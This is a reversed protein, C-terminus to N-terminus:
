PASFGIGLAEATGYHRQSSGGGETALAALSQWAFLLFPFADASTSLLPSAGTVAAKMGSKNEPHDSWQLGAKEIRTRNSTTDSLGFYLQAIIAPEANSGESDAHAFQLGIDTEAARWTLWIADFGSDPNETARIVPEIDQSKLIDLTLAAFNALGMRRNLTEDNM